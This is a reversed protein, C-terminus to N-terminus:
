QKGLEEITVLVKTGASFLEHATFKSIDESGWAIDAVAKAIDNANATGAEIGEIESCRSALEFGDIFIYGDDKIGVKFVHDDNKTEITRM